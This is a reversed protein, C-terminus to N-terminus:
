PKRAVFVLVKSTATPPAHTHDGHLAVNVFGVRELMMQLEHRFYLCMSLTYAEATELQGDRFREALMNLTITQEVPDLAMVRGRLRLAAGDSAPKPDWEPLEPEPLKHQNEALWYSWQKADCWHVEVDLVLTGGPELHQYMRRLGEWDNDRRGGIGFTGCVYLTRYQRPLALEHMAQAYLKPSVGEARAYAACRELMDSSVDAGDVDFGAQALPVLLRGTGCGVDLVPQGTSAILQKLYAVEPGQRNFEHWWQAVVGYHWTGSVLSSPHIPIM